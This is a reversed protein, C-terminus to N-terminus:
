LMEEWEKKDELYNEILMEPIEHVYCEYADPIMKKLATLVMDEGEDEIHLEIGRESPIWKYHIGQYYGNSNELLLFQDLLDQMQCHFYLCIKYVTEAAVRNIAKKGNMLENLTTYPIGTEQSIRYISKDANKVCQKFHENM